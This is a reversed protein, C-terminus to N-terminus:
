NQEIKYGLHKIIDMCTLGVNRFLFSIESFHLGVQIVKSFCSITHVQWSGTSSENLTLYGDTCLILDNTLTVCPPEKASVLSKNSEVHARHKNTMWLSLSAEAEKRTQVLAFNLFSIGDYAKTFPLYPQPPKLEIWVNRSARTQM